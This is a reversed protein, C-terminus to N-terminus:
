TTYARQALPKRFCLVTFGGDIELVSFHVDSM